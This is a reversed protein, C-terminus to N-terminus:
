PTHSHTQALAILGAMDPIDLKQRMRKVYTQVTSTTVTLIDAIETTSKSEALLGMVQRERASLRLLLDQRLNNEESSPQQLDSTVQRLYNEMDALVQRTDALCAALDPNPSPPLIEALRETNARIRAIKQAIQQDLGSSLGQRQQEQTEMLWQTMMRLQDSQQQALMLLRDKEMQHRKRQEIETQLTGNAQALAATRAAVKAELTGNADALAENREKLAQQLRRLTLHTQVRALVEEDEFPKTIYDVGGAAFGKVKDVTEDLASIFIVPIERYAEVAKIRRCVEYGDMDPMLIDLLILEPLGSQLSSLAYAGSPVPRARYGNETFLRTLVRLNAPTDDVILIASQENADIM